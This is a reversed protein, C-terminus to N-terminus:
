EKIMDDTIVEDKNCKNIRKIREIIDDLRVSLRVLESVIDDDESSSEDESMVFIEEPTNTNKPIDMVESM